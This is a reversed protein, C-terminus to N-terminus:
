MKWEYNDKNFGAVRRPGGELSSTLDGKFRHDTEGGAPPLSQFDTLDTKEITCKGNV